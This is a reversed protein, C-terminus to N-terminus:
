TETFISKKLKLQLRDSTKPYPRGCCISHRIKGMFLLSKMVSSKWEQLIFDSKYSSILTKVSINECSFSVQGGVARQKGHLGVHHHQHMRMQELMESCIRGSSSSTDQGPGLGFGVHDNEKVAVVQWWCIYGRVERNGSCRSQVASWEAVYASM